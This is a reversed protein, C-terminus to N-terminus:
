STPLPKPKDAVWKVHGDTFVVARGGKGQIFGLQTGAPDELKSLDPNGRYTYNFRMLISADKIYPNTIDVFGELPPLIDDCDAAYMLMALGVQKASNITEVRQAEEQLEDYKSKDIPLVSCAMVSGNAVFAISSKNWSLTYNDESLGVKVPGSHKEARSALMLDGSGEIHLDIAESAEQNAFEFPYPVEDIKGTLLDLAMASGRVVKDTPLFPLHHGDKLWARVIRTNAPTEYRIPRMGGPTLIYEERRSEADTIRVLAMDHSPSTTITAGPEPTSAIATVPTAANLDIRVFTNMGSKGNSSTRYIIAYGKSTGSIFDLGVLEAEDTQRFIERGKGTKKNWVYIWRSPTPGKAMNSLMAWFTQPRRNSTQGEVVLYDGDRSWTLANVECAIVHEPLSVAFYKDGSRICREIVESQCFGATGLSLSLLVLLLRNM